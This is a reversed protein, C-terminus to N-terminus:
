LLSDHLLLVLRVLVLRVRALRVVLVTALGLTGLMLIALRARRLSIVLLRLLTARRPVGVVFLGVPAPM